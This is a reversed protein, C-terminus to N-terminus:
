LSWRVTVMANRPDGYQNIGYVTNTSISQYYKKDFVNNINLRIDVHESAKYSTMLDVLTYAEQEIRFKSSTDFFNTGQNYITNQRYVGGGITWRNLDGPLQYTTFAKFVHRPIDTDFLRGVNDPNSDKTYKVSAYTYGAGTGLGPGPDTSKWSSVKAACKARPKM